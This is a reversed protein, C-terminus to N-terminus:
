VTTCLRLSSKHGPDAPANQWYGNVSCPKLMEAHM